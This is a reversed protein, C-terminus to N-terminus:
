DIVSITTCECNPHLPPGNVIDYDINFTGGEVGVVSMGPTFYPTNIGIVKGHLARCFQCAGPNAFWEKKNVYGTQRYAELTAETSANLTETRALREARYGESSSYYAELKKTTGKLTDNNLAADILIDELAKRTERNFSLGARSVRDKINDVIRKTIEFQLKEEGALLLAVPGQEKALEVLIPYVEDVMRATEIDLDFLIDNYAKTKIGKPNLLRIVEKEQIKLYKVIIKQTLVSFKEQMDMLTVRFNEKIETTLEFKKQTIEKKVIKKRRIITATAQGNDKTVETSKQDAIPKGAPMMNFPLFFQDGGETKGLGKDGRIEDRTKWANLSATDNALEAAKDAPVPSEYRVFISDDGYTKDVYTEITDAIRFMKPDINRKAFIYESSEANARNVDETIGLIPKPVRFMAMIDDRSMHKARELAVGEMGAGLQTFTVETNRVIAVKGANDVSGYEAKWKSKLQQFDVDNMQPVSLIGSPRANNFLFNRTFRSAYEETQIYLQGAAVVGYGRSPDEPNPLKFHLVEDLDLPVREGSPLNYVYGVIYGSKALVVQVLDPRLLYIEKPKRSVEGVRFYWFAEGMLEIFAQTLEFLVFQSDFPNPKRLLTIFDHDKILVEEHFKDEKVVRLEIKGVEGAIAGVCTWVYGVNNKLQTRPSISKPNAWQLMFNSQSPTEDGFGAFIKGITNRVIPFRAFRSAM